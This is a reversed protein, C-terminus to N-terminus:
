VKSTTWSVIEALVRQLAQDLASAAQAGSIGAAPVRATFLNAAAIRGTTQNVVRAAITVVAVPSGGAEIQFDRIETTLVADPTFKDDPRGVMGIRHANEFSQVLRAQVLVPLRDAWQAGPLYTVQDGGPRVVIRESSIAQLAAPETVMIQARGSGSATVQTAAKLDFTTPPPPSGVLTSCGGLLLTAALALAYPAPSPLRPRVSRMGVFQM